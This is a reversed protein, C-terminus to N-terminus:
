AAVVKLLCSPPSSRHTVWPSVFVDAGPPLHYGNIVDGEPIQRRIGYALPYLRM